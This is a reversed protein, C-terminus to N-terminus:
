EADKLFDVEERPQEDLSRKIFLKETSLDVIKTKGDEKIAIKPQLLNGPTIAAVTGRWGNSLEVSTGPPYVGMGAVFIKCIDPDFATENASMIFNFSLKASVANKYVRPSTMADFTDAVALIRGILPIRTGVLRKPYGTGDYKEHHSAIGDLIERDTIGALRCINVSENVHNKVIEMERDTLADTKNLLAAPIATKGIDFLLGALVSKETLASPAKQEEVLKKAIFGALLSVNLSHSKLYSDGDPAIVLSLAIQSIGAVEKSLTKGLEEVAEKPIDYKGDLSQISYVDDLVRNAHAIVEPDLIKTAPDFETVLTRMEDDNMDHPLKIDVTKIDLRELSDLIRKPDLLGETLKHVPVKSPILVTSGTQSLIDRLLCANPYNFLESVPIKIKYSSSIKM